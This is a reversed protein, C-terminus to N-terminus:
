NTSILASLSVVLSSSIYGCARLMHPYPYTPSVNLAFGMSWHEITNKYFDKIWRPFHISQFYGVLNVHLECAGISPFLADILWSLDLTKKFENMYLLETSTKEDINGEVFEITISTPYMSSFIRIHLQNRLRFRADPMQCCRAVDVDVSCWHAASRIRLADKAWFTHWFLSAM